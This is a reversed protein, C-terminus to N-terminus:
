KSIISQKLISYLKVSGSLQNWGSAGLIVVIVGLWNSFRKWWLDLYQFFLNASSDDIGDNVMLLQFSFIWLLWFTEKLEWQISNLWTSQLSTPTNYLRNLQISVVMVRDLDGFTLDIMNFLMTAFAHQQKEFLFCVYFLVFLLCISCFCAVLWKRAWFVCLGISTTHIEGRRIKKNIKKTYKWCRPFVM